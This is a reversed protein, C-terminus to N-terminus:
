YEKTFVWMPAVGIEKQNPVAYTKGDIKAGEWFREDIVSKMEKGKTELLEDIELFAGKRANELYPNAWSCTFALDYPEGSNIIVGMKQTYDGYDIFKMDITANIKEKLYENAKEQVMDLDKPTQGITYWTLKATEGEGANATKDAGCGTLAVSTTLMACATLAILKKFKLM